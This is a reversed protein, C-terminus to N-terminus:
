YTRSVPEGGLRWAKSHELSLAACFCHVICMVNCIYVAFQIVFEKAAGITVGIFINMAFSAAASILPGLNKEYDELYVLSSNNRTAKLLHANTLRITEESKVLM